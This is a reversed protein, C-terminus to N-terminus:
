VRPAAHACAGKWIAPVVMALLLWVPARFATADAKKGGSATGAPRVSKRDSVNWATAQPLM